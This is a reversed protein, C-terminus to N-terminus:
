NTLVLAYKIVTLSVMARPQTIASRSRRRPLTVSGTYDPGFLVVEGRQRWRRPKKTPEKRQAERIM